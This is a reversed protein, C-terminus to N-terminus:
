TLVNPETESGEAFVEPESRYRHQRQRETDAGVRGDVADEACQERNGKRYFIDVTDDDDRGSVLDPVQTAGRGGGVIKEIPPVM